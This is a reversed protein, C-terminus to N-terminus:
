QRAPHVLISGPPQKRHIRGIRAICHVPRAALIGRRLTAAPRIALSAHCRLFLHPHNFFTRDQIRRRQAPARHINRRLTKRMGHIPSSKRQCHKRRRFRRHPLLRNGSRLRHKLFDRNRSLEFGAHMMLRLAFRAILRNMRLHRNRSLEFSAHMMLWVAFRAILRNM